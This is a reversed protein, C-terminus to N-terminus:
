AGSAREAAAEAARAGLGPIEVRPCDGWLLELDYHRREAELFLHVVVEDFDILIWKGERYGELGSRLLGADRLSKVLHDSASRLHRPNLGSAIVFYDTIQLSKAVDYVAIDTLKREDLLQAARRALELGGLRETM